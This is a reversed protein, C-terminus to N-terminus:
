STFPELHQLVSHRSGKLPELRIVAARQSGLQNIQIGLNQNIGVQKQELVNGAFPM